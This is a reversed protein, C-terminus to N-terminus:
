YDSVHSQLNVMDSGYLEKHIVARKAREYKTEWQNARNDDADEVAKWMIGRLWFNRWKQYLTTLTTSALDLETLDAYYNQILIMPQDDTRYPVPHLWFEGDDADGMPYFREPEGQETPTVLQAREWLPRDPVPKYTDLIVYTSSAGPTFNSTLATVTAVKTSPNYDTIQGLSSAGTGATIAIQRGILEGASATETAALTISGASGTQASGYRQGTAFVMTMDAYYDTPNSYKGLGKTLVRIGNTQLSKLKRGAVWIDAKLEEMWLTEARTTLASSPSSYGAKKFAEAVLTSLTPATPAAM